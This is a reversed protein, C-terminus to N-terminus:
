VNEWRAALLDMTMGPGLGLLLGFNNLDFYKQSLLDYSRNIVDIISVSSTNGLYRLSDRSFAIKEEDVGVFKAVHDLIRKGGTHSLFFDIETSDKVFKRYFSEIIPHLDEISHMVRKDLSFHFGNNEVDYRIFSESNPLTYTISDEVKLLCNSNNNVVRKKEQQSKIAENGLLVCAAAADGFLSSCIASSVDQDEKYYCLSSFELAIILVKHSPYAKLYDSAQLLASAGASCGLQTIPIMKVSNKFNMQNILYNIPSPMMFGTCSVFVILDIEEPYMGLKNLLRKTVSKAVDVSNKQYIDCREKFTRDKLVESFPSILHRKDVAVNDVMDLIKEKDPHGAYDKSLVESMEKRTVVFEPKHIVPKLIFSM